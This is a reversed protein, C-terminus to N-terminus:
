KDYIRDCESRNKGNWKNSLYISEGEVQRLIMGYAM